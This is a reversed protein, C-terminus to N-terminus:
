RQLRLRAEDLSIFKAEGSEIKRRREELFNRHWDPSEPETPERCLAERLAKLTRLHEATNMREIDDINM